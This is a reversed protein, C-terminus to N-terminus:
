MDNRCVLIVFPTTILDWCDLIIEMETVQLRRVLLWHIALSPALIIYMLMDLGFCFPRWKGSSIKLRMKRFSFIHIKISIDSFTTELPWILLIGANTWIIDQRWDSSFGNDSGIITLKNVCIRTVRGWQTLSATFLRHQLYLTLGENTEGSLFLYCCGNIVCIEMWWHFLTIALCVLVCNDNDLKVFRLLGM